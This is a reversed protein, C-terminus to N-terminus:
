NFYKEVIKNIQNQEHEFNYNLNTKLRNVIDQSVVAINKIDNDRFDPMPLKKIDRIQLSNTHNLLKIMKNYVESNLVGVFFEPSYKQPRQSFFM